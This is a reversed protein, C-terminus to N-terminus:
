QARGDPMVDTSNVVPWAEVDAERATGTVCGGYIVFGEAVAKIVVVDAPVGPSVRHQGIAVPVRPPPPPAWADHLEHTRQHLPEDGAEYAADAYAALAALAYPDTRRLVFTDENGGDMTPAKSKKLYAALLPREHEELPRSMHAWAQLLHTMQEAFTGRPGGAEEIASALDRALHYATEEDDYQKSLLGRIMRELDLKM